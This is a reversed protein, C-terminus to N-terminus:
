HAHSSSFLSVSHRLSETLALLAVALKFCLFCVKLKIVIIFRHLVPVHIMMVMGVLADHLTM